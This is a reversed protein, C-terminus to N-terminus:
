GNTGNQFFAFFVTEFGPAAITKASECIYFPHAFDIQFGFPRLMEDLERMESPEFFWESTYSAYKDRCLAVLDERGSCLLKGGAAAIKLPCNLDNRYTRRGPLPRYVTFHNEGDRVEEPTCCYDLSLQRALVENM